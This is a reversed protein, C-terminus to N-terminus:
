IPLPVRRAAAAVANDAGTLHSIGVILLTGGVVVKAVRIWTNANGLNALFQEWAPTTVTKNDQAQTQANAAAQAQAQTDYLQLGNQEANSVQTATTLQAVTWAAANQQVAKTAGIINLTALSKAANGVQSLANVVQGAEGEPVVIWKGVFQQEQSTIHMNLASQAGGGSVFANAAAQTAFPGALRVGPGNWNPNTTVLFKQGTGTDQSYVYFQTTM